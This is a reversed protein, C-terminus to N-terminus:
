RIGFKLYCINTTKQIELPKYGADNHQMVTFAISMVLVSSLGRGEDLPAKNKINKTDLYIHCNKYTMDYVVLTCCCSYLWIRDLTFSDYMNLFLPDSTM